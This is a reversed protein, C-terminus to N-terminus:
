KILYKVVKCYENCDAVERCHDLKKHKWSHSNYHPQMTYEVTDLSKTLGTSTRTSSSIHLSIQAEVTKMYWLYVNEWTTFWSVWVYRNFFARVCQRPDVKMSRSLELIFQMVITQHAVHDMLSHKQFVYCCWRLICTWSNVSLVRLLIKLLCCISVKKIKNKGSFLNSMEYLNDGISEIQM